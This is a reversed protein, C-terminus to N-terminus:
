LQIDLYIYCFIYARYAHQRYINFQLQMIRQVQQSNYWGPISLRARQLTKQLCHFTVNVNITHLMKFWVDNIAM